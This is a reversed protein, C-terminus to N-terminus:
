LHVCHHSIQMGSSGVRIRESSSSLAKLAPRHALPLLFQPGEISRPSAM